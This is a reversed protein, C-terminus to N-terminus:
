NFVSLKPTYEGCQGVPATSPFASQFAGGLTTGQQIVGQITPPYRHCTGQAGTKQVVVTVTKHWHRCLECREKPPAQEPEKSNDEDSM